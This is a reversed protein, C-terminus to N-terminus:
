IKALIQFIVEINFRKCKESIANINTHFADGSGLWNQITFEINRFYGWKMQSMQWTFDSNSYCDYKMSIIRLTVGINLYYQYKIPFIESSYLIPAITM